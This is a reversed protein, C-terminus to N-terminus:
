KRFRAFLSGGSSAKSQVPGSQHAKSALRRFIDQVSAPSKGMSEVAPAPMNKEPEAPQEQVVSRRQRHVMYDSAPDSIDPDLNQKSAPSEPFPAPATIAPTSSTKGKNLLSWKNSPKSVQDDAYDSHTDQSVQNQPMNEQPGSDPKAISAMIKEVNHKYISM